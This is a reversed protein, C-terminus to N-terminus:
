MWVPQDTTSVRTNAKTVFDGDQTFAFHFSPMEHLSDHRVATHYKARIIPM